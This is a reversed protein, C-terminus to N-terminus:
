VLQLVLHKKKGASLKALGDSFHDSILLDKIDHIPQDNVRAGGGQILRRAEGKSTVLNYRAFVEDFGLPLESANINEKELQNLDGSGQKKFLEAVTQHIAELCNRDRALATTEDALIKKAENLEAGQLKELKEIESIPFDTFLRLYRGVDRDDTNRWFQWYDYDSLKERNLWVAGGSTKGMKTGASTLLLPATLGFVRKGSMRRTLDVGAVINGWQDSGGMQLLCNHHRYLELFDYSQFIMYNFELFSLPQERELRLKISDFSLMRNVSFHCGYDRLFELYNLKKLWDANNVLVADTSGAGFKLFSEFTKNIGKINLAIDSETLQQRLADKGTPDGIMSTAGGILVIPKHGTKQLLRLWMIGVLHGVHLSDATPDFGLYASISVKQMLVDLEEIDTGQHIFGREKSIKLFESHYMIKFQLLFGHMCLLIEALFLCDGDTCVFELYSIRFPNM